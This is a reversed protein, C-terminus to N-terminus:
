YVNRASSYEGCGLYISFVFQHNIFLIWVLVNHLTIDVEINFQSHMSRIIPIRAERVFVIDKFVNPKSILIQFIKELM